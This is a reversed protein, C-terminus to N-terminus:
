DVRSACKRLARVTVVSTMATRYEASGHLDGIAEVETAAVAAAAAFAEEDARRGVLSAAAEVAVTPTSAVGTIGLRAATIEGEEVRLRAAVGAVPYDRDPGRRGLKTYASAAGAEPLGVRVETLLEDPRLASTFPGVFFEGSAVRRSGAASQAVLVADLALVTGPEDAVADAHALSGGLTGRNRVAPDGVTAAADGLAAAHRRVLPHAALQAHTAMAGIVLEPGEVAVDALGAVGGLDVLLEPAALRLKMLPLLSQGGALPRTGADADALLALAQQVTEPAEYAFRNVTGIRGV